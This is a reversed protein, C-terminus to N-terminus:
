IIATDEDNYADDPDVSFEPVDELCGTNSNCNQLSSINIYHDLIDHFAQQNNTM